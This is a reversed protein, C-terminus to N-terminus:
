QVRNKERRRKVYKLVAKSRIGYNRIDEKDDALTVNDFSLYYKKWVHKWSIKKTVKERKLALNTHRKVAKKLELVSTNKSPVVISLTPLPGRELFLEISQGRAVAIQARIEDITPDLPLNSFIPDSEIINAIAEKTLKVLEEHSLREQEKLIDKIDQEEKNMGSESVSAEAM